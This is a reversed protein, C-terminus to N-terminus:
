EHYQSGTSIYIYDCIGADTWRMYIYSENSLGRIAELHAPDTTTCTKTVNAATRAQCIGYISSGSFNVSACSFFQVADASNRAGIFSGWATNGSINVQYHNTFGAMASGAAALLATSILAKLKM